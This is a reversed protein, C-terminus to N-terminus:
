GLQLQLKPQAQCYYFHKISLLCSTQGHWTQYIVKWLINKVPSGKEIHLKAHEMQRPHIRMKRRKFRIPFTSLNTIDKNILIGFLNNNEM